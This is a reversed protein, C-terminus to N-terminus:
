VLKMMTVTLLGNGYFGLHIIKNEKDEGSLYAVGSVSIQYCLDATSNKRCQEFFFDPDMGLPYKDPHKYVESPRKDSM